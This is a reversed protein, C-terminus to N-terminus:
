FRNLVYRNFHFLPRKMKTYVTTYLSQTMEDYCRRMLNAENDSVDNKSYVAKSFIDALDTLTAGVDIFALKAGVRSAYGFSTETDLMPLGYLGAAKKLRNFYATSANRNSLTSLGSLRRSYNRRFYTYLMGGGLVLAAIIATTTLLAKLWDPMPPTPPKITACICPSEGCDDCPPPPCVCPYEGCVLCPPPPCVCPYEGCEPCPPPPCVCPYEGCEPCPPPPCVCPYEGCLECPEPPCTCPDDGCIECPEHDPCVCPYQGCILCDSPTPTECICPVEGCKECPEPPCTCPYDGCVPCFQACSCPLPGGCLPCTFLEHHPFERDDDDDDGNGIIPVLSDIPPLNWDIEDTYFEEYLVPTAEFPIWGFGPFYAEVWAHANAPTLTFTFEDPSVNPLYFGEVLRTPVGVCRAMVALASAYHACYGKQLEFIFYDVFDGEENILGEEVVYQFNQLYEILVRMKDYANDWGFTFDEAAKRVREPLSDPLQLYDDLRVGLEAYNASAKRLAETLIEDTWDVSVYTVTYNSQAPLTPKVFVGGHRGTYLDVKESITMNRPLSPTFAYWTPMAGAYVKVFKEEWPLGIRGASEVFAASEGMMNLSSLMGHSVMDNYASDLWGRGSYNDKFLGALYLQESATVDMELYGPAPPPEIFPDDEPPKKKDDEIISALPFLPAPKPIIYTLFLVGLCMPILALSFVANPRVRRKKPAAEPRGQVTFLNLKCVLMVTFCFVFIVVAEKSLVLNLMMNWLLLIFGLGGLMYLEWHKKLSLVAALCVLLAPVGVMPLAYAGIYPLEGNIFSFLERMLPRVGEFMYYNLYSKFAIPLAICFLAICAILSIKNYLMALFFVTFFVSLVVLTLADVEIWTSRFILLLLAFSSVASILFFYIYESIAHKKM